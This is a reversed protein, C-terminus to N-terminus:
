RAAGPPTGGALAAHARRLAAALPTEGTREAEALVEDATRGIAAIRELCEPETYGLIGASGSIIGGANALFDPLYCVGRAALLDAVEPGALQNNAAGVIARAGVTAATAATLIGGIACPAFIDAEVAHIRDVPAVTGEPGAAAAARARHRDAVILRAGTAALRRCLDSGVKGAGQVAVRLGALDPRGLRAKAVAEMASVLGLATYPATDGLGGARGAVHATAEAITELDELSVGVDGATIYRGALTDIVEGHLRFLARRDFAGPPQRVVAKGGGLGIGALASKLSMAEALRLADALAAGPGPYATFRTGGAAPGLRTSHIVLFAHYGLARHRAELVTDFGEVARTHLELM